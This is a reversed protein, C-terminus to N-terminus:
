SLPARHDQHVADVQVCHEFSPNVKRVEQTPLIPMGRLGSLDHQACRRDQPALPRRRDGGLELRPDRPVQAPLSVEDVTVLARRVMGVAKTRLIRRAATWPGPDPKPRPTEAGM